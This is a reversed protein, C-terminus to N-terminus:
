ADLPKTDDYKNVAYFTNMNKIILSSIQCNDNTAKREREVNLAYIM